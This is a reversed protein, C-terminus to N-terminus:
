RSRVSMQCSAALVGVCCTGVELQRRLAKEAATAQARVAAVEEQARQLQQQLEAEEGAASGLQRRLEAVVGELDQERGPWSGTHTQQLGRQLLPTLTPAPSAAHAAPSTCHQLPDADTSAAADGPM